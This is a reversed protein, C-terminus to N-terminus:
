SMTVYKPEIGITKQEIPCGVANCLVILWEEKEELKTILVCYEGCAEIKKLRKM